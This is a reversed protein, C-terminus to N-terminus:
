RWRKGRAYRGRLYLTTLFLGASMGAAAVKPAVGTMIRRRGLPGRNTAVEGTEALQKFSHLTRSVYDKPSRGVLRAASVAAPGGPIRIRIELQVETGLENPAPIFRVTGELHIRPNDTTRWMLLRNEQDEVLESTWSEIGVGPIEVTWKSHKDDIPAVAKAVAVFHALNEPARWLRYLQEPAKDITINRQVHVNYDRRQAM